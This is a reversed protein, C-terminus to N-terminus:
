PQWTSWLQSPTPQRTDMVLGLTGGVTKTAKVIKPGLTETREIATKKVTQTHLVLRM